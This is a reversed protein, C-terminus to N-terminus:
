ESRPQFRAVLAAFESEDDALRFIAQASGDSGAGLLAELAAGSVKGALSTWALLLEVGSEVLSSALRPTLSGDAGLAIDPRKPDASDARPKLVGRQESAFLAFSPGAWAVYLEDARMAALTAGAQWGRASYDSLREHANTLATNFLRTISMRPEAFAADVAEWVVAAVDLAPGSVVEVLGYVTDAGDRGGEWRRLYPDWPDAEGLHVSFGTATVAQM